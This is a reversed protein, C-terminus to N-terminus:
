KEDFLHEVQYDGSQPTNIAKDIERMDLKKTAKKAKTRKANAKNAPSLVEADEIDNPNINEVNEPQTTTYEYTTDTGAEKDTWVTSATISRMANDYYTILKDIGGQKTKPNFRWEGKGAYRPNIQYCGRSLQRIAGCKKLESIGKKYMAESWGLKKMIDAKIQGGTYTIQSYELSEANCYSMRKALQEFLYRYSKPIRNHECWNDTYLKVYDPESTVEIKQTTEQMVTEKTGDAKVVTTETTKTVTKAM